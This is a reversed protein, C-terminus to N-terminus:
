KRKVLKLVNNPLAEVFQFCPDLKKSRSLRAYLLCVLPVYLTSMFVDMPYHMGFRIRSIIMLAAWLFTLSFVAWDKKRNMPLILLVIMMWCVAFATHGSPFSYGTEKSWHKKLYQPMDPNNKITKKIISKRVSRKEKYFDDLNVGQEALYSTYPRPEKYFSKLSSKIVQTGLLLIVATLLIFSWSMNRMLALLVVIFVASTILSYFLSSGTETIFFLFKDLDGYETKLSWQWGVLWLIIPILLLKSVAVSIILMKKRSLMLM